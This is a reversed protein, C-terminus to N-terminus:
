ENKGIRRYEIIHRFKEAVDIGGKMGDSIGYDEYVASFDSARIWEWGADMGMKREEPVNDDLCQTYLLHSIFPSEGRLLSDKM